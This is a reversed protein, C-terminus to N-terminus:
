LNYGKAKGVCHLVGKPLHGHMCERALHSRGASDAGRSAHGPASGWSDTVDAVGASEHGLPASTARLNQRAGSLADAFPGAKAQAAAWDLVNQEEPGCRVQPTGKADPLFCTWRKKIKDPM